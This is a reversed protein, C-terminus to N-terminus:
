EAPISERRDNVRENKLGNRDSFPNHSCPLTKRSQKSKETCRALVQINAPKRILIQLREFYHGCVIGAIAEDALISRTTM